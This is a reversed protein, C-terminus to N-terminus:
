WPAETNLFTLITPQGPYAPGAQCSKRCLNKGFLGSPDTTSALTPRWATRSHPQCRLTTSPSHWSLLSSTLLFWPNFSRHFPIGGFPKSYCLSKVPNANKPNHTIVTHASPTHSPLAAPLQQQLGPSLNRFELEPLPVLSTFAKPLWIPPVQPPWSLYCKLM